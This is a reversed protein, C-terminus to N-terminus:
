EREFLENKVKQKRDRVYKKSTHFGGSNRFITVLSKAVFNRKKINQIKKM